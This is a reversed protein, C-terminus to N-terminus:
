SAPDAATQPYDMSIRCREMEEYIATVLRPSISLDTSPDYLETWFSSLANSGAEVMEDSIKIMNMGDNGEDKEVASGHVVSGGRCAM